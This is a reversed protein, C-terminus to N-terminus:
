GDKSSWVDRPPAEYSNFWGGLIWLQDKFVVEGQSDRAQWGANNTEKVWDPNKTQAFVINTLLILIFLNVVIRKM